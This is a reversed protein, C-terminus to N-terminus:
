KFCVWIENQKETLMKELEETQQTVENLDKEIVELREAKLRESDLATKEEVKKEIERRIEEKFINLIIFSESSNDVYKKLM